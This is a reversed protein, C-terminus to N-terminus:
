FIESIINDIQLKQENLQKQQENLQVNLLQIMEVLTEISNKNKCSYKIHKTLSQKHKYTQGCECSYEISQVTSEPNHGQTKSNQTKSVLKHKTSNM